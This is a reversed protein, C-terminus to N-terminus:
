GGPPTWGEPVPGTGSTLGDAEAPDYLVCYMRSPGSQPLSIPETTMYVPVGPPDPSRGRDALGLDFLPTQGVVTVLTGAPFHCDRPAEMGIPQPSSPSPPLGCGAVGALVLLVPGYLSRRVPQAWRLQITDPSPM